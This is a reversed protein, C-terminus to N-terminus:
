KDSPPLEELVSWTFWVLFALFSILFVWSGAAIGFSKLIIAATLSFILLHRPYDSGKKKETKTSFLVYLSLTIATGLVAFLEAAPWGNISFLVSVLLAGVGGAFLGRLIPSPSKM